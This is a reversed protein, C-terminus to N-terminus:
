WVTDILELSRKRAQEGTMDMHEILPEALQKGINIVPNLSTMPDQFVMSIRSGRIKRIEELNMTLLDKEKFLSKGAVIEGPPSAILRLCSLMTVSKGCGSEGVVGLTEGQELTFSVGNVAHVVGEPTKFHTELDTVNLLQYAM